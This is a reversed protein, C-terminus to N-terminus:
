DPPRSSEPGKFSHCLGNLALESVLAILTDNGVTVSPLGPYLERLLEMGRQFVLCQGLLWLAIASVDPERMQSPLFRRVTRCVTEVHASLNGTVVWDIVGSPHLIEWAMLRGYPLAQDAPEAGSLLAAILHRMAEERPAGETRNLWAPIQQFMRLFAYGFVEQYLREKSRFHYHVAAQNARAREVIARITGGHFGREAFIELAALLIRTRTDDAEVGRGGHGTNAPGTGNIQAILKM